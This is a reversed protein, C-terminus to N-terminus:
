SSTPTHWNRGLRFRATLVVYKPGNRSSLLMVEVYSCAQCLQLGWVDWAAWGQYRVAKLHGWLCPGERREPRAPIHTTSGPVGCAWLGEPATRPSYLTCITSEPRPKCNLRWKQCRAKTQLQRRAAGHNATQLAIPLQNATQLKHHCPGLPMCLTWLPLKM